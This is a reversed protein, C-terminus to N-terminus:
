SQSVFNLLRVTIEDCVAYGRPTLRWVDGSDILFGDSILDSVFDTPVSDRLNINYTNNIDHLPIGDARLTLFLMEDVQQERSLTETNAQPLLGSKVLQTWSTLSRHNWYRVGDLLGHASPGVSLYNCAHWYALNHKCRFGPLAFNSVEYQEYGCDTLMTCVLQYMEADASDPVASIAGSHLQRYLPTGQEYILSYASIHTPQLDLVQRLTSELSFLTQGPVAFMIDMNINKFGVDQANRVAQRAQEPSHIRTLFQLEDPQMSQVGVSLRNIGTARYGALSERTVTGPNAEMTIEANSLPEPVEDMIRAIQERTLLTPTGGGFFVTAARTAPIAPQRLRLERIVTDVFTSRHELREISYFDCYTCKKECFPVHIYVSIPKM